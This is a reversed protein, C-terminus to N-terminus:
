FTLSCHSLVYIRFFIHGESNGKKKHKKKHENWVKKFCEQNFFAFIVINDLAAVIVFVNTLVYHLRVFFSVGDCENYVCSCIFCTVLVQSCFYSGEIGQKLCIPCQLKSQNECGVRTCSHVNIDLVTAM